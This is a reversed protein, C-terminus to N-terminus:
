TIKMGKVQTRGDSYNLRSGKILWNNVNRMLSHNIISQNAIVSVRKSQFKSTIELLTGHWISTGM